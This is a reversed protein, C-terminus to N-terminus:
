IVFFANTEEKLQFEYSELKDAMEGALEQISRKKNHNAELSLNGILQDLDYRDLRIKVINEKNPKARRIKKSLKDLLAYEILEIIFDREDPYFEVGITKTM